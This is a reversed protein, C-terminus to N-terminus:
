TAIYFSEHLLSFIPFFPPPEKQYDSVFRRPIIVHFIELSKDKLSLSNDRNRMSRRVARYLNLSRYKMRALTENLQEENFNKKEHLDM